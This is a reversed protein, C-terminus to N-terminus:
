ADEDEGVFPKMTMWAQLKEMNSLVMLKPEIGLSRAAAMSAVHSTYFVSVGRLGYMEPAEAPVPAPAPARGGHAEARPTVLISSCPADGHGGARPTAAVDHAPVARGDAAPREAAAAREQAIAAARAHGTPTLQVRTFPTVRPPVNLQLGPTTPEEKTPTNPESKVPTAAELSSGGGFPSPAPMPVMTRTAAAAPVTVAAPILRTCAASSPHTNNPPNLTFTVPEFAPCGGQHQERCLGRWWAEVDAWKKFGRHNADMYGDTQARAIWSNSYVGRVRGAWVAYFQCSSANGHATQSEHGPCPYYPPQCTM